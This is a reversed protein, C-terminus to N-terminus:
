VVSSIAAVSIDTHPVPVFLLGIPLAEGSVEVFVELSKRFIVFLYMIDYSIHGCSLYIQGVSLLGELLFHPSYLARRHSGMREAVCESM